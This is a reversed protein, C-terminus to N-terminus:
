VALSSPSRPAGCGIRKNSSGRGSEAGPGLLGSPWHGVCCRDLLHLVRGRRRAVALTPSRCFFCAFLFRFLCVFPNLIAANSPSAGSVAASRVLRDVRLRRTAVGTSGFALGMAILRGNGRRIRPSRAVRSHPPCVCVCVCRVMMVEINRGIIDWYVDIGYDVNSFVQAIANHHAFDGPNFTSSSRLTQAAGGSVCFTLVSAIAIAFSIM